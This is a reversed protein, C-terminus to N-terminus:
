IIDKCQLLMQNYHYFIESLQEDGKYFTLVQNMKKSYLYENGCIQLKLIEDKPYYIESLYEFAKLFEHISKNKDLNLIFGKIENEVSNGVNEIDNFKYEYKQVVKIIDSPLKYSNYAVVVYNESIEKTKLELENFFKFLSYYAKNENPNFNSLYNDVLKDLKKTKKIESIQQEKTKSEPVKSCFTFFLIILIIYIWM